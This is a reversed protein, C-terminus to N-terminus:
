MREIFQDIGKASNLLIKLDLIEDKTIGLDRKPRGSLFPIYGAKNVDELKTRRKDNIM